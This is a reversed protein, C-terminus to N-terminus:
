DVGMRWLLLRYSTTNSIFVNLMSYFEKEGYYLIDGIKPQNVTIIGGEYSIDYPEGFYMKLRDFEFANSDTM